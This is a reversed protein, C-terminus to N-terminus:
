IGQEKRWQTMAEHRTVIEAKRSELQAPHDPSLIHITHWTIEMPDSCCQICYAVQENNIQKTGIITPTHM